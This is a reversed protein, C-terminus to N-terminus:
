AVKIRKSAKWSVKQKVLRDCGKEGADDYKLAVGIYRYQTIAGNVETGNETISVSDGPAGAYYDAETQAFYDDLNSGARDFDFTGEWGAPLEAFRVVGDAAKSELSTTLQKSTFGTRIPARLVGRSTVIDLVFDKGINFGSAPM